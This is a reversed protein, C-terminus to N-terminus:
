RAAERLERMKAEGHRMLSEGVLVADAAIQAIDEATHIGSEAVFVMGESILPKIKHSLGMDMTFDSLNRHNVGIIRASTQLAMKAEAESHVEVLVDLGIKHAIDLYKQLTKEDLLSCILLIASAGLVKAEYIMYEDVVFDKRLLPVAVQQAIERLDDGSGQFYFPETLVSIAEAGLREYSKAVELPNFSEAIIGKSPSAKKVECIFALGARRLAKEFSPRPSCKDALAKIQEMPIKQKALAVRERTKAAIEQLIDKKNSHAVFEDLKQIAKHAAIAERAVEIGAQITPTKGAIYLAAGVNLLVIDTKPGQEGSLINRAIQANEAPSGGVLDELKARKMGFQEPTLEYKKVWGDRVECVFTTGTTTIEDLGDEGHVVMGSTVGLNCLTQALPEVLEKDYVGLLEMKAGAPNTLPGLINFITPIGLAKRIHSVHKMGTHYKQAFMFCIGIKSLMEVSKEPALEINVGLQELVDAAGCKSTASRNGHKAVPVGCAASLIASVTSINFTNAKDGGTGVIELVDAEHLLRPCHSRMNAAHATIELTTTGKMSLATLYAAVQVDSARGTMMEEMVGYALDYELDKMGKLQLLAEQIKM